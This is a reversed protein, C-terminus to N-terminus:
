LMYCGPGQASPDLDFEVIATKGSSRQTVHVQLSGAQCSEPPFVQLLLLMGGHSEIWENECPYMGPSLLNREGPSQLTAQWDAPIGELRFAYADSTPGGVFFIAGNVCGPHIRLAKAFHREVSRGGVFVNINGAWYRQRRNLLDWADPALDANGQADARANSSSNRKLFSQLMGSMGSDSEPQDQSSLATLLRHPPVRDFSGLPRPRPRAVVTTLLHSEGPQLPPLRLIKLPRWPVFAGLPASQLFVPEPSSIGRGTNRVNVSIRVKDDGEDMFSIDTREVVLQTDDCTYIDLSPRTETELMTIGKELFAPVGTLNLSQSCSVYFGAFARAFECVLSIAPM